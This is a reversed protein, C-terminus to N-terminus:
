GCCMVGFPALPPPRAARSSEFLLWRPAARIAIRTACQDCRAEPYGLRLLVGRGGTL